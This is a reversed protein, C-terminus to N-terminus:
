RPRSEEERPPLLVLEGNVPLADLRVNYGGRKNAWAAGVRNFYSKVEAGSVSYAVLDPQKSKESM